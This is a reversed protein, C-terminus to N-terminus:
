PSPVTRELRMGYVLVIGVTVVILVRMSVGIGAPGMANFMMHPLIGAVLVSRTNVYLWTMLVSFCVVTVLFGGFPISSQSLGPLFFAPVHWTAWIVGLACAAALPNMGKLLRPLAYGRWGLEEGLAGPDTFLHGGLVVLPLAAYWRDLGLGGSTEGLGQSVVAWVLWIAPYGLLGALFWGFGVRWRVASKLLDRVGSGGSSRYTLILSSLTPAYVAVFFWPSSATMEGVIPTLKGGFAIFAGCILWTIGFTLALFWALELRTQRASTMPKTHGNFSPAAAVM